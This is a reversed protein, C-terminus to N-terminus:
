LDAVRQTDAIDQFTRNALLAVLHPDSRLQNLGTIAEM